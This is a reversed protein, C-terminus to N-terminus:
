PPGGRRRDATSRHSSPVASTRPFAPDPTRSAAVKPLSTTPDPLHVGRSAALGAPVLTLVVFAPLVCGVLPLLLLVPLRRVRTEVQRRRRRREADALRGLAPAIPAGSSSASLLTTVLPQTAAGLTDVVPALADALRHGTRVQGAVRGLAVAVPGSGSSGVAAISESVTCGSAAAVALLDCCNDLDWPSPREVTGRVLGARSVLAARPAGASRATRRAPRLRGSTRPAGGRLEDDEPFRRPRHAPVCLIAVSTGALAAVIWAAM